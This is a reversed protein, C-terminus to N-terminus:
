FKTESGAFSLQFLHYNVRGNIKYITFDHPEVLTIERALCGISGIRNGHRFGIGLGTRLPKM